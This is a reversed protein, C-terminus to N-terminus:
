IISQVYELYEQAEEVSSYLSTEENYCPSYDADILLNKYFMNIFIKILDSVNDTRRMSIGHSGESFSVFENRFSMWGSSLPYSVEIIYTRKFHIEFRMERKGVSFEKIQLCFIGFLESLQEKSLETPKKALASKIEEKNM